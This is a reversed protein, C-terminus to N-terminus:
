PPPPEREGEALRMLAPSLARAEEPSPLEPLNRGGAVTYPDGATAHYIRSLLEAVLGLAIAGAGLLLIVAALAALPNRHVWVELLYKQYVVYGALVLSTAIMSLGVGGFLHIPRAAYGTQLFLVTGLDLVVRATRTIGYKSRGWTRARHNVELEVVRAGRWLAYAPIFRHMEGYLRVGELVERRYAKLTCGFDHIPVKTLAAILLNALRSPLRRSLFPDRRRRRWGSVVDAGRAVETLLRPIDRPDNQLDADMPVLVRGRAHRLAADLAATQGYNRRLEVVRVVDPRASAMRALVEQSGDRSGDDVLVVEWRVGELGDFALLLEELLRPLNEREDHVPVLVSVDLLDHPGPEM